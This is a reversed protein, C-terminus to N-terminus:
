EYTLLSFIFCMIIIYLDNVNKGPSNNKYSIQKRKTLCSSKKKGRKQFPPWLDCTHTLHGFLAQKETKPVLHSKKKKLWIIHLIIYAAKTM